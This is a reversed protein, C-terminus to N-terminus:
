SFGTFHIIASPFRSLAFERRWKADTFDSYFECLLLLM